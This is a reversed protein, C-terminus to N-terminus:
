RGWIGIRADPYDGTKTHRAQAIADRMVQTARQISPANTVATQLATGRPGDYYLVYAKKEQAFRITVPEGNRPQVLLLLPADGTSLARSTPCPQLPTTREFARLVARISSPSTLKLYQQPKLPLALSNLKSQPTSHDRFDAIYLWKTNEAQEWLWKDGETQPQPLRARVLLAAGLLALPALLLLRRPHNM